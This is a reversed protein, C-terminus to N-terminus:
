KGAGKYRKTKQAEKQLVRELVNDATLWGLGTDTYDGEDEYFLGDRLELLGDEAGKTGTGQVILATRQWKDPYWMYVKRLEDVAVSQMQFEIGNEAMAAALKFIEAYRQRNKNHVNVCDNLM